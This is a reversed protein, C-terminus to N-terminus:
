QMRSRHLLNEQKHIKYIMSVPSIFARVLKQRDASILLIRSEKKVQKM